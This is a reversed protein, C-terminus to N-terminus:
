STRRKRLQAEELLLPPSGRGPSFVAAHPRSSPVLQLFQSPVQTTTAGHISTSSLPPADGFAQAQAGLHWSMSWAVSSSRYSDVSKMLAEIVASGRLILGVLEERPMPRGCFFHPSLHVLLPPHHRRRRGSGAISNSPPILSLLARPNM